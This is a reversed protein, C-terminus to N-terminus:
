ACTPVCRSSRSRRRRLRAWRGRDPRDRTGPRRHRRGTRARANGARRDGCPRRVSPLVGHRGVGRRAAGRGAGRRHERRGRARDCGPRPVGRDELDIGREARLDRVARRPPPRRLRRGPRPQRRERRHRRQRSGPRALRAQADGRPDQLRRHAAPERGEARGVRRADRVAHDLAGGTHTQRDRPRQRRCRQDCRPRRRGDGACYRGAPVTRGAVGAQPDTRPRVDAADRRRLRCRHPNGVDVRGSVDRRRRAVAGVGPRRARFRDMDRPDGGARHRTGIALHHGPPEPDLSRRRARVVVRRARRRRDIACGRDPHLRRDLVAGLRGPRVGHHTPRPLKSFNFATVFAPIGPLGIIVGRWSASLGFTEELHTPLATLFAGFTVAFALSGGLLVSLLLRDRLAHRIGGLQQRVAPTVAPRDPELVHWAVVATVISLSYPALAWRWGAADTIVGSLIPFAALAVILAASNRGIWHTRQKGEFHDSILVVSLNILGASGFGQLFRALLLLGFTPALAVLSGAVGFITLCPVLVRRRGFRDALIGILPAILIGPLPIAAM